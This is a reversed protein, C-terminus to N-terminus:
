TRHPRGSAAAAIRPGGGWGPFPPLGHPEPTHPLHGSVQIRQRGLCLAEVKDTDQDREVGGVQVAAAGEGEARSTGENHTGPCGTRVGLAGRRVGVGLGVETARSFGSRGSAPGKHAEQGWNGEM